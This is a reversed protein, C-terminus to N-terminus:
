GTGAASGSFQIDHFYKYRKNLSLLEEHTGREVIKGRELVLILDAHRITSLRHAVVLVTRNEMVNNIASQVLRESETDLSSTAEDLILVPPNLLLARAISLRQRQGGSLMVGREGIVTDLGLPLKEIFEMANAAKAASIISEKSANPVGYAINNAITDDFLFTEQSVVGFLKRLGPLPMERIDVGDICIKGGTIDYFRPLLDLTTTKGSGSSGVLAAVSGKKIEFSIEKLVTEECGPYNFNVDSFEIKNNFSTKGRAAKGDGGDVAIMKRANDGDVGGDRETEEVASDLAAFVRDASAFGTQLVTALRSIEKLPTFISFLFILFRTFDEAGFGAASGTNLVQSGGYWLLIVVVVVGMVETIPSALEGIYKSRFSQRVFRSNEDKFKKSEANLTGFMKVIRIGNVTEHLISLLSAMHEMVRKSRRRVIRGIITIVYGLIPFIVFIALTFKWNIIFLMIVFFVLRMPAVIIKDFTSTMSNNISTVDNVVLSIVNGSRTRDYYSVPLALAHTFLQDRMDRVVNLNLMAMVVCKLYTFLNKFLFAAAMLGCVIQLTAMPGQASIFLSTWYKLMENINAASYEPKDMKLAEPDFITQVLSASFWLSLGEFAVALVALVLAAAILGTYPRMYGLMRLYLKLNNM